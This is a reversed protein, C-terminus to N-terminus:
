RFGKEYVLAPYEVADNHEPAYLRGMYRFEHFGVDGRLFVRPSIPCGRDTAFEMRRM